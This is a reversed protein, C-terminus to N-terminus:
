KHPAKIIGRESTEVFTLIEDRIASPAFTNKIEQVADSVNLNSLYLIRYIEQIEDIQENSFGRRRLGISNVGYYSLPERGATIFPPVDKGVHASGQLMVHAGVRSFQHILGGGGIVAWDGVVVEGAIQTANAIIVHSGIRCDHAIHTYAMILTDSGIITDGKSATGRNVTVCERLVTNDGIIAVTKEGRFKLDQPIGSVVAGPHVTVNSGLRAGELVVAHTMIHCGPGVVADGEVTAFPSIEATPHVTAEPSVYALPSIM